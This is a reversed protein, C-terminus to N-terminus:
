ARRAPLGFGCPPRMVSMPRPMVNNTVPVVTASFLVGLGRCRVVHHAQAIHDLLRADRVADDVDVREVAELQILQVVHADGRGGGVRHAQESLLTLTYTSPM